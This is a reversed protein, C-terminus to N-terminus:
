LKLESRKCSGPRDSVGLLPTDGRNRQKNKVHVMNCWTKSKNKLDNALIIRKQSFSLGLTQLVALM